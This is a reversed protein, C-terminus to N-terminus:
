KELQPQGVKLLVVGHAPVLSKFSKKLLGLDEHQWLDRVPQAGSLNLDSWQIEIEQTWAKKNFLGVAKTGDSLPKAWVEIDGVGAVRTAPQALADQDIDIVEHNTLIATTIPCLTNPDLHGLDCSIMLPASMLSWLSFQTMQEAPTLHTFRPTSFGLRGMM